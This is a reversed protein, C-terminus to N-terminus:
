KRKARRARTLKLLAKATLTGASALGISANDTPLVGDSWNLPECLDTSTGGVWTGDAAWSPLAASVAVAAVAILKEMSM